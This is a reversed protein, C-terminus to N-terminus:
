GMWLSWGTEGWGKAMVAKEITLKGCKEYINKYKQMRSPNKGYLVYLRPIKQGSNELSL